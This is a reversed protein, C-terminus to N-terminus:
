LWISNFTIRIHFDFRVKNNHVLMVIVSRAGKHILKNQYNKIVNSYTILSSLLEEKTTVPTSCLLAKLHDWLFFGVSMKRVHIAPTIFLFLNLKEVHGKSYGYHWLFALNYKKIYVFIHKLRIKLDEPRSIM